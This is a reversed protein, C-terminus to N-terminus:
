PASLAPRQVWERTEPVEFPQAFPTVALELAAAELLVASLSEGSLVLSVSDDSRAAVLLVLSADRQDPRARAQDLTGPPMWRM